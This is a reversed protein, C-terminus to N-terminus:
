HKVDRKKKSELHSSHQSRNAQPLFFCARKLFSVLPDAQSLGALKWQSRLATMHKAQVQRRSMMEKASIMLPLTQKCLPAHMVPLDPSSLSWIRRVSSLM